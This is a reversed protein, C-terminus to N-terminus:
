GQAEAAVCDPVGRLAVGGGEAREAVLLAPRCAEALGGAAPGTLPAAPIRLQRCLLALSAAGDPWAAGRGAEAEPGGLEPLEAALPVPGFADGLAPGAREGAEQAGEGGHLGALRGGLRPGAELLTVAVGHRHLLHAAALGALGGGVVVVHPPAAPEAAAGRARGAGGRGVRRGGGLDDEDDDEQNGAEAEDETLPLPALSARQELHELM